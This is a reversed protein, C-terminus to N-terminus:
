QRGEESVVSKLFPNLLESIVEVSFSMRIDFPLLGDLFNQLM